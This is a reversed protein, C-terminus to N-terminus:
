HSCLLETNSHGAAPFESPSFPIKSSMFLKASLLPPLIFACMYELRKPRQHTSATNGAAETEREHPFAASARLAASNISFHIQEESKNVYLHMIIIGLNIRSLWQRRQTCELYSKERRVKLESATENWLQYRSRRCCRLQAGGGAARHEQLVAGQTCLGEEERKTALM